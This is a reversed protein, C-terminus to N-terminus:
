KEDKPTKPNKLDKEPDNKSDKPIKGGPYGM